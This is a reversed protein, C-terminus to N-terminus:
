VLTAVMLFLMKLPFSALAFPPAVAVPTVPPPVAFMVVGKQLYRPLPLRRRSRRACNRRLEHAPSPTIVFM